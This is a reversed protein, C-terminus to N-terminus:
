RTGGSTEKRVERILEVFGAIIGLILFVLYLWKTGLWKDLLYGLIYGAATSAPLAMALTTYRGMARWQEKQKPEKM